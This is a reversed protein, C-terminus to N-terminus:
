YTYGPQRQGQREDAFEADSGGPCYRDTEGCLQERGYYSSRSHKDARQETVDTVSDSWL